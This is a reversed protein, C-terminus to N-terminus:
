RAHYVGQVVYMGHIHLVTPTLYWFHKSKSHDFIRQINFPEYKWGGDLCKRESKSYDMLLISAMWGSHALAYISGPNVSTLYTIKLIEM